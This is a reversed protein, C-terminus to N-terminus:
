TRAPQLPAMRSSTLQAAGLPVSPQCRSALALAHPRPLFHIVSICLQPFGARAPTVPLGQELAGTDTM